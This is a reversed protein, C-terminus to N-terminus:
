GWFSAFPKIQKAVLLHGLKQWLTILRSTLVADKKVLLVTLDLDLVMAQTDPMVDLGQVTYSKM